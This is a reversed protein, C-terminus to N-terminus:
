SSQNKQFQYVSGLKLIQTLEDLATRSEVLLQPDALDTEKLRDRYHKEVWQCLTSYLSENMLCAQNTASLEEPTLVVRLRLCAPGGGNNMSQRLDFVKVDNIPNNSAVLEELYATVQRDSQCDSPVVITMNNDSTSLLQSNFLYSNVATEVRIQSEPVEIICFDDHGYATKLDNYVQAQNLFAKEHCFLVNRNGVAIVDNHFVGQDIVEPNQQAFVTRSTNLQHRRAIAQSAEMTQRAPYRLPAPKSDDFSYQGFVFFEVGAEGYNQCFRTHNAAGEDGFHSTSNLAPHHTFHKESSFVAKLINGTTEHEISRHFKSCLNAPTFHVTGSTTDASPSVTAANATWMTSASGCAALIKPAQQSAQALVQEDSGSFGLKRLTYVDPREHPALVGQVLGMDHLAKMKALGQLAAQKPNSPASQNSTSAINGLSLGAYNHTPGVLGDFNAEVTKSM